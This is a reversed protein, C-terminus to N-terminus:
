CRRGPRRRRRASRAAAATSRCRSARRPRASRRRAARAERLHTEVETWDIELGVIQRATGARTSRACRRSASSAARTSASWGASAWRTRRTSRRRRDAGEQQQLLGGRDAAAGGRHARRRAGAHRGAQHRVATGGEMLADWVRSARAAGADLDRLRSRRHLRHALHRGARRRDHRQDRPLVEPRRHRRRRGRAAAAGLDAGAAGARRGGGLRGRDHVDM